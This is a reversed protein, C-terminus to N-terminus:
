VCLEHRSGIGTAICFWPAQCDPLLIVGRHLEDLDLAMLPAIKPPSEINLMSRYIPRQNEGHALSSARAVVTTPRSTSNINPNPSIIAKDLQVSRSRTKNPHILEFPM